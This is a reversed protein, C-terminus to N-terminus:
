IVKFFDVVLEEISNIDDEDLFDNNWFSLVKNEINNFAILMPREKWILSIYSIYYHNDKLELTNRAIHKVLEEPQDIKFTDM